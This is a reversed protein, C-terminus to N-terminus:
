IFGMSIARRAEEFARQVHKNPLVALSVKDLRIARRVIGKLKALVEAAYYMDLREAVEDDEGFLEASRVASEESQIASAQAKQQQMALDDFFRKLLNSAESVDPKRGLTTREAAAM